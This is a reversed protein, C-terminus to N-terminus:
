CAAPALFPVWLGFGEPTAPAAETGFDVQPGFPAALQHGHYERRPLSMLRHNEFLEQLATGDLATPWAAGLVARLAYHAIFSVAAPLNSLVSALMADPDGDRALLTFTALPREISGEVAQTVTDLPKDIPTLLEPAQGSAILLTGGVVM